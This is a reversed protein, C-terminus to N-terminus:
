TKQSGKKKFWIGTLITIVAFWGMVVLWGHFFPPQWFSYGGGAANEAYTGVTFWVGWKLLFPLVTLIVGVISGYVVWKDKGKRYWWHALMFGFNGLLVMAVLFLVYFGAVLPRDFPNEVWASAYMVEWAPWGILLFMGAFSYGCTLYLNLPGLLKNTFIEPEDKLYKKSLLAFIHGVAFAGPLDVQVM